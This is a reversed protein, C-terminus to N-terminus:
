KSKRVLKLLDEEQEYAKVTGSLYGLRYSIGDSTLRWNTEKLASKITKRLTSESDYDSRSSQSDLCSFEVTFNRGAEPKEFRVETYAVQEIAPKLKDILDAVKLKQLKDVADYLDKNKDREKQKEFDRRLSDWPARYELYKKGREDDYCYLAKDSEYDPDPVEKKPRLDLKSIEKEGCAPCTYTTTIVKGNRTDKETTPTHCKQCLHPKIKFLEGDEWYSTPKQCHPCKFIFLVQENDPDTYNGNRNHLMKTSLRLGTKGCHYCVPETTPRTNELKADKAEDSAQWERITSERKEWREGLPVEVYLFFIKGLWFETAKPKPDDKIKKKLEDCAKLHLAVKERGINVTQRDYRDEYEKRSKLHNIMM